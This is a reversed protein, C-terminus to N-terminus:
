AAESLGYLDPIAHEHPVDEKDRVHPTLALALRSLGSLTYAVPARCLEAAREDWLNWPEPEPEYRGRDAGWAWMYTGLIRGSFLGRAVLRFRGASMKHAMTYAWLNGYSRMVRDLEHKTYVYEEPATAPCELAKWEWEGDHTPVPIEVWLGVTPSDAPIAVGCVSKTIM